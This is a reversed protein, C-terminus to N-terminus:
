FRNHQLDSFPWCCSVSLQVRILVMLSANLYWMVIFSRTQLLEVRAQLNINFFYYRFIGLLTTVPILCVHEDEDDM